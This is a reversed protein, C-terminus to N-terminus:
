AAPAAELSLAVSVLLVVILAILVLSIGVFWPIYKAFPLPPEERYSARELLPTTAFLAERLEKGDTLSMALDQAMARASASFAGNTILFGRVAKLDEMQVQFAKILEV